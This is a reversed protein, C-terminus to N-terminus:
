TYDEYNIIMKYNVSATSGKIYIQKVYGKPPWVISEGLRLSTYTTGGDCSFELEKTAPTNTIPNELYFSSIVKDASSPVTTPSTGVSGSYHTTSGNNDEIEMQPPTDGAM